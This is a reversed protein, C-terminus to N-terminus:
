KNLNRKLRAYVKQIFLAFHARTTIYMPKKYAVSVFMKLWEPMMFWWAPSIAQQAYVTEEILNLFEEKTWWETNKIKGNTYRTVVVFSLADKNTKAPVDIKVM